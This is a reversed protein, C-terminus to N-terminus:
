GSLFESVLANFRDPKEMNIMHATGQITEYRADPIENGLRRCYVLVDPQDLDGALILTRARIESLRAHAPPEIADSEFEATEEYQLIPLNMEAVLARLEPDVQDPSRHPGDVWIAMECENIAAVGGHRGAEEAADWAALLSESRPPPGLATCVILRDVMDPYTLAFDLAVSGGLSLGLIHARDIGLAQMLDHLDQHHSFPGAPPATAGFGRLDYRLVKFEQALGNVQALWM